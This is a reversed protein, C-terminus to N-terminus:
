GAAVSRRTFLLVSEDSQGSSWMRHQGQSACPIAVRFVCLWVSVLPPRRRIGLALSSDSHRGQSLIRSYASNIHSISSALGCSNRPFTFGHPLITWCKQPYFTSASPHVSRAWQGMIIHLHLVTAHLCLIKNVENGNECRKFKQDIRLCECNM